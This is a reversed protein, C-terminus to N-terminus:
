KPDPAYPLQVLANEPLTGWTWASGSSVVMLAITDVGPSLLRCAPTTALVRGPCIAFAPHASRIEVDFRGLENTEAQALVAGQGAAGYAVLDGRHAPVKKLGFLTMGELSAAFGLLSNNPAVRTHLSQGCVRVGGKKTPGACKLETLEVRDTDKGAGSSAAGRADGADVPADPADLAPAVTSGADVVAPTTTPAETCAVSVVLGVLTVVVRSKM